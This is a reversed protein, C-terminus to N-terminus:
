VPEKELHETRTLERNGLDLEKMGGLTSRGRKQGQQAGQPSTSSPMQLAAQNSAIVQPLMANELPQGLFKSLAIKTSYNLTSIRKPTMEAMVKSQMEKLLQPYVNTLTDHMESSYTGLKVQKLADMPNNVAHFYKNFKIQQSPSPKLGPSNLPLQSQVRPIKQNLFYIANQMTGQMGGSINPLAAQMGQTASNLHNILAQPDNSLSNIKSVNKNYNQLSANSLGVSVARAINGSFISKAGSDLSSNVKQLIDGIGKFVSFTNNLQVGAQYPNKMTEYAKALGGLTGSVLGPLGLSHSAITGGAIM